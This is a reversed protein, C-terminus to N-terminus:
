RKQTTAQRGTSFKKRFKEFRLKRRIRAAINLAAGHVIQRIRFEASDITAQKKTRPLKDIHEPLNRRGAKRIINRPNRYYFVM